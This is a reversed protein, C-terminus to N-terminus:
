VGRNRLVLIHAQVYVGGLEFNSSLLPGYDQDSSTSSSYPPYCLWADGSSSKSRNILLAAATINAELSNDKASSGRRLNAPSQVSGLGLPISTNRYPTLIEIFESVTSFFLLNILGDEPFLKLFSEWGINAIVDMVLAYRVNEVETFTSREAKRDKPMFPRDVCEAYNEPTVRQQRLRVGGLLYNHRAVRPRHDQLSAIVSANALEEPTVDVVSTSQSVQDVVDELHIQACVLCTVGWEAARMCARHSPPTCIPPSGLSASSTVPWLAYPLVQLFFSFLDFPDNMSYFSTSPDDPFAKLVIAKNLSQCSEFQNQAM